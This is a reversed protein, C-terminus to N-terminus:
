RPSRFPTRVGSATSPRVAVGAEAPGVDVREIRRQHGVRDVAVLGDVDLRLLADGARQQVPHLPDDAHTPSMRDEATARELEKVGLVSAHEGVQALVLADRDQADRVQRAERLVDLEVEAAELVPHRDLQDPADLERPDALQGVQQRETRVVEEPELQGVAFASVPGPHRSANSGEQSATWRQNLAFRRGIAAMLAADVARGQSAGIQPHQLDGVHVAAGGVVVQHRRDIAAIRSSPSPAQVAITRAMPSPASSSAFAAAEDARPGIRELLQQGRRLPEVREGLPAQPDLLRVRRDHEAIPQDELQVPEQLRALVRVQLHAREEGLDAEGVRGSDGSRHGVRLSPPAAAAAAISWAKTGDIPSAQAAISRRSASSGRRPTSMAAVTPPRVAAICAARATM